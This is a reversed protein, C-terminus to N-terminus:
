RVSLTLVPNHRKIQKRAALLKLCVTVTGHLGVASRKRYQLRLQAKRRAFLARLAVTERLPAGRWFLAPLDGAVPQWHAQQRDRFRM